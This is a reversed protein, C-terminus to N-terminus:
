SHRIKQDTWSVTPGEPSLSHACKLKDVGICCLKDLEPTGTISIRVLIEVITVDTKGQGFLAKPTQKSPLVSSDVYGGSLTLRNFGNVERLKLIKRLQLCM